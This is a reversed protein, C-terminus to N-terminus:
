TNGQTSGKDVAGFKANCAETAAARESANTYKNAVSEAFADALGRGDRLLVATIILARISPAYSELVQNTRLNWAVELLAQMVEQPHNAPWYAALIKEEDEHSLGSSLELVAARDRIQIPIDWKQAEWPPLQSPPNNCALVLKVGPAIQMKKGLASCVFERSSDGLGNMLQLDQAVCHADDIVIVANETTLGILLDGPVFRTQGDKLEWYGMLHELNQGWTSPVFFFRRDPFLAAIHRLTYTKGIGAMGILILISPDCSHLFWEVVRRHLATEVYVESACTTGSVSVARAPADVGDTRVAKVVGWVERTDLNSKVSEEKTPSRGQESTGESM